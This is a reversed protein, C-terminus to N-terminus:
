FLEEKEYNMFTVGGTVPHIILVPKGSKVAYRITAATGSRFRGDCVALLLDCHSALWRNRTLMCAKTYVPSLCLTEDARALIREYRARNQPTWGDAQTACPLICRLRVSPNEHKLRLVSEAAWTDVGQAMGSLYETVGQACLGHILCSLTKKLRLCEPQAEDGGFPLKEPRHGTFACIHYNGM